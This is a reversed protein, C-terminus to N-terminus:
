DKMAVVGYGKLVQVVRFGARELRRVVGRQVDKGLRKGPAGTYHFLTAGRKLVRNLDAYFNESYLEGALALRPPDHVAADFMSSPMERVVDTADGLIATVNLMALGRSWPNYEAVELVLPDKEITVVYAGRRASHIATYGLGTCIDLVVMGRRVRALRVKRLADSWPDTGVINHMHIGSIELTPAVGEGLWRLKYFRGSVYFAVRELMGGRLFYVYDGGREAIERLEDLPLKSGELEVYGGRARVRTERLGLDVVARGEVREELMKVIMRAEESSLAVGKKPCFVILRVGV